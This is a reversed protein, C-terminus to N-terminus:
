VEYGYCYKLVVIKPTGKFSNLMIPEFNQAQANFTRWRNVWISDEGL